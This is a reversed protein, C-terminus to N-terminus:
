ATRCFHPLLRSRFLPVPPPQRPPAGVPSHGCFRSRHALAMLVMALGRLGDVSALRPQTDTGPTAEIVIARHREGVAMMADSYGRTSATDLRRTSSRVRGGLKVVPGPRSPM